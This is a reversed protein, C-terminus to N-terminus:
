GLAWHSKWPLVAQSQTHGEERGAYADTDWINEADTEPQGETGGTRGGGASETRFRLRPQARYGAGYAAPSSAVSLPHPLAVAGSAAVALMEEVTPRYTWDVPSAAVVPEEEVEPPFMSHFVACTNVTAVPDYAQPTVPPAIEQKTPVQLVEQLRMDNAITLENNIAKM